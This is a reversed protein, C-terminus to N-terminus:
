GHRRDGLGRGMWRLRSNPKNRLANVVSVCLACLIFDLGTQRVPQASEPKPRVRTTM